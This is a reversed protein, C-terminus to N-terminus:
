RTIAPFSTLISITVYYYYFTNFMSTCATLDLKQYVTATNKRMPKGHLKMM